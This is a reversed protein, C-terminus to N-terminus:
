RACRRFADPRNLGLRCPTELDPHFPLLEILGQSDQIFVSDLRKLDQHSILPVRMSQTGQLQRLPIQRWGSSPFYRVM